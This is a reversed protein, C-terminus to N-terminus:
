KSKSRLTARDILTAAGVGLAYALLDRADFGSGLVLHGPTTARLADLGPSHFLQSVEVLVCVVYAAGSRLGLTAAPAIMGILWFIMAAWLADGLLDRVVAGLVAGRLHVVLGLAITVGALAAHRVRV